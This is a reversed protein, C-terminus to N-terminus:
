SVILSNDKKLMSKPIVSIIESELADILQKKLSDIKSNDNRQAVLLFPVFLFCFILTLKNLM